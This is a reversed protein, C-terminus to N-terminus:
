VQRLWQLITRLMPYFRTATAVVPRFEGFYEKAREPLVAFGLSFPFIGHPSFALIAQDKKLDFNAKSNSNKDSIVTSRGDLEYRSDGGASADNGAVRLGDTIVQFSIYRLWANWLKWQKFKLWQGVRYHRHPGLITFAILALLVNRYLARKQIDSKANKWKRYLYVILSPVWLVSGVFFISSLKVSWDDIISIPEEAIISHNFNGKRIIKNHTSAM